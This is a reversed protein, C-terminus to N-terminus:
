ILLRRFGITRVFFSAACEAGNGLEELAHRYYTELEDGDKALLSPWSYEAPVASPQCRVQSQEKDMKLFLLYTIQEVYADYSLTDHFIIEPLNGVILCWLLRSQGLPKSLHTKFGTM